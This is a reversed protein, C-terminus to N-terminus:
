KNIIILVLIMAVIFVAFGILLYKQKNANKLRKHNFEEKLTEYSLKLNIDNGSRIQLLSLYKMAMGEVQNASILTHGKGTWANNNEKIEMLPEGVKGVWEGANLILDENSLSNVDVPLTTKCYLCNSFLVDNEFGCNKCKKTASM